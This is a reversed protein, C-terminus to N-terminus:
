LRNMTVYRLWYDNHGVIVRGTSSNTGSKSRMLWVAIM